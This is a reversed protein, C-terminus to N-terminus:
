CEEIVLKRQGEDEKYRTVGSGRDVGRVDGKRKEELSIFVDGREKYERCM